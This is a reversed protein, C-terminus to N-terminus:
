KESENPCKSIEKVLDKLEKYPLFGADPLHKQFFPSKKLLELLKAFKM